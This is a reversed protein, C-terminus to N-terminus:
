VQFKQDMYFDDDLFYYFSFNLLISLLSPWFLWEDNIELNSTSNM